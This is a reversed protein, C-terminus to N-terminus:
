STSESAKLRERILEAIARQTRKDLKELKKAINRKLDWDVKRPALNSLEVEQIIPENNTGNTEAEELPMPGISPIKSVKLSEDQPNYSRFKPTPLASKTKEETNLNEHKKSSKDLETLKRKRQLAAELLRSVTPDENNSM